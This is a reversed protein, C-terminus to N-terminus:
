RFPTIVTCALWPGDKPHFTASWFWSSVSSWTQQGNTIQERVHFTQNGKRAYYTLWNGSAITRETIQHGSARLCTESAQLRRTGRTARRLIVERGASRFTAIEGPFSVAFAAAFDTAEARHLSAGEFHTPWEELPLDCGHQRHSFVRSDRILGLSAGLLLLSSQTLM